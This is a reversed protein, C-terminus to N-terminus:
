RDRPGDQDSAELELPALDAPATTRAAGDGPPESVCRRLQEPKSQMGRCQNLNICLRTQMGSARCSEWDTCDWEEECDEDCPVTVTLSTHDRIWPQGASRSGYRRGRWDHLSFVYISITECPEAGLLRLPVAWETTRHGAAFSTRGQIGRPMPTSRWQLGWTHDWEADRDVKLWRAEFGDLLAEDPYQPLSECTHMLGDVMFPVDDGSLGFKVSTLDNEGDGNRCDTTDDPFEWALYLFLEDAFLSVIYPIRDEPFGTYDGAVESSVGRTPWDSSDGDIRVATQGAPGGTGSNSPVSHTSAQTAREAAISARWANAFANKTAARRAPSVVLVVSVLLLLGAVVGGWTALATVIWTRAIKTVSPVTM